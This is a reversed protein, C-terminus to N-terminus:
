SLEKLYRKSLWASFSNIALVVVLLIVATAQAIEIHLGEGSLVYMQVSLTSASKFLFFGSAGESLALGRPVQTVTGATFVLAATEGVIRGISLIVGALIGPKAAPLVVKTVTRLRGAGLGFSAERYEQPVSKLAEETSRIILPLVMIALTFSGALISYGFRLYSVFLLLGFLGYVISPIGALTETALAVAQVIWKILPKQIRAYEQLYIATAVGLPVAVLLTIIAVMITTIVSPLISPSSSSNHWSFMSLSLHPVGTILIYGLMYFLMCVTLGVGLFLLLRLILDIGHRGGTIANGVTAFKNGGHSSGDGTSNSGGGANKAGRRGGTIAQIM